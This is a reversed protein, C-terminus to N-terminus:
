WIDQYGENYIKLNNKLIWFYFYREAIHSILRNNCHKYDEKIFEKTIPLVIDFIDKCYKDILEKKCIFMERNSFGKRNEIYDKFLPEKEYYMNLYKDLYDSNEVEYKLQWYLSMNFKVEPTIIIDYDKLIKKAQDLSLYNCSDKNWFIRRYHCLGVIDDKKYKWIEYLGTLENIYLNLENIKDKGKYLNGVLLEEYGDPVPNHYERHKIIYIM